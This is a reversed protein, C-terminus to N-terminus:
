ESYRICLFATVIISLLAVTLAAMPTIDRGFWSVTNYCYVINTNNDLVGYSYVTTPATGETYITSVNLAQAKSILEQPTKLQVEKLSSPLSTVNVPVLTYNSNEFYTKVGVNEPNDIIGTFLTASSIATVILTTLAPKKIKMSICGACLQGERSTTIIHGIQRLNRGM